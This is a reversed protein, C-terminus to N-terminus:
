AETESKGSKQLEALRTAILRVSAADAPVRGHGGQARVVGLVLAWDTGTDHATAWLKRAFPRTLRDAPPTPDGLPRNLWVVSGVGPTDVEPDPTAKVVVLKRATRKRARKANSSAPQSTPAASPVASHVAVRARDSEAAESAAPAPTAAEATPADMTAADAVTTTAPAEPAPAPAPAANADVPEDPPGVRPPPAPATTEAPPALDPAPEAPAADTTTADTTAVAVSQDGEVLQAVQDGAGATLAAGAFFLTVFASAFALRAPLSRRRPQSAFQVPTTSEPEATVSTDHLPQVNARDNRVLSAVVYGGLFFALLRVFRRSTSRKSDM